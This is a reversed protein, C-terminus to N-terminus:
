ISIARWANELARKILTGAIEKRYAATSRVDDIPNIANSVVDAVELLLKDSIVNGALHEEGAPVRISTAAVSGLAFRAKTVIKTIPHVEIFVAANVVSIALAKRKGLKEFSSSQNDKQAVFSIKTILEGPELQTRGPGKFLDKLLIERSGTMNAITIIADYAILAPVTDAAPSANGMNGGVTGNNRIQPSGVLGAAKALAPAYKKIVDSESLQTHTTLAGITIKSGEAKIGKLIDLAGLDVIVSPHIINEKLKVMVDTGGALLCYGPNEMMLEFTEELSNPRFYEFKSM